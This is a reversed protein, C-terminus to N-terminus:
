CNKNFLGKFLCIIKKWFGEPKPMPKINSDKFDTVTSTAGDAYGSIQRTKTLSLKGDTSKLLSYEINEKILPNSNEVFGGYPEIEGSLLQMGNLELNKLNELKFKDKTTWYVSFTNFKYGKTLCNGNEIKYDVENNKVMPGEIHGVLVIDPFDTLNVVSACRDLSHTLPPKIDALAVNFGVFAFSSVILIKILKEM